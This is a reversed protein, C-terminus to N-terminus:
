VEGNRLSNFQKCIKRISRISTKDHTRFYYYEYKLKKYNPFNDLDLNQVNSPLIKKLDKERFAEIVITSQFNNIKAVKMYEYMRDSIEQYNQEQAFLVRHFTNDLFQSGSIIKTEDLLRFYLKAKKEKKSLEKEAKKLKDKLLSLKKTDSLVPSAIITNKNSAILGYDGVSIPKGSGFSFVVFDGQALHNYKKDHSFYQASDEILVINNRKCFDVISAIDKLIGYGHVYIMASVEVKEINLNGIDLCFEDDVDCFYPWCGYGLIADVVSRCITVPVIVYTNKKLKANKLAYEIAESGSNTLRCDKFGLRAEALNEVKEKISKNKLIHM